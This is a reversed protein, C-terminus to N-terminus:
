SQERLVERWNEPWRQIPWFKDVLWEFDHAQKDWRNHLWYDATLAHSEVIEERPPKAVTKDKTEYKSWHAYWTKKNRMIKGEWPGLQTKLGMEVSDCGFTGYITEDFEGIMDYLSKTSFRCSGPFAMDEVIDIDKDREQRANDVRATLRPVKIRKFPYLYSMADIFPKDDKIRWLPADFHYRRPIVIWNDACDEKLIRDWDQGVICHDDIKFVYKGTTLKVLENQTFRSGRNERRQVIKFQPYDPIEYRYGSVGDVVVIMEIEGHRKAYIDKITDVLYRSKWSPIIVSVRCM